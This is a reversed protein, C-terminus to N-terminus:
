QSNECKMNMKVLEKTRLLKISKQKCKENETTRFKFSNQGYYFGNKYSVNRMRM